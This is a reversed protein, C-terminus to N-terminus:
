RHRSPLMGGARQTRRHDISSRGVPAARLAQPARVVGAGYGGYSRRGGYPSWLWPAAGYGWTGEFRRPQRYSPFEGYPGATPSSRVVTIIPGWEPAPAPPAQYQHKRLSELEEATVRRTWTTVPHSTLDANTYVRTQAGVPAAALLVLAVPLLKM